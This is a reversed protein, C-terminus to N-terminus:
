QITQKKLKSVLNVLHDVDSDYWTVLYPDGSRRIAEQMDHVYREIRRLHAELETISTM